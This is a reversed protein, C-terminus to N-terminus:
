CISFHIRVMSKYLSDPLYSRYLAGYIAKVEEMSHRKTIPLELLRFEVGFTKTEVGTDILGNRIYFQRRREYIQKERGASLRPNDIEVLVCLADQLVTKSLNKLFASGVGTGRLDKRVAFYDLLYDSGNNTLFFAYGTIEDVDNFAACCVYQGKRLSKEIAFFPKRESKPFDEKLFTNYVTKAETISLNRYIM